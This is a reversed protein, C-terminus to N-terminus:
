NSHNQKKGFYVSRANESELWASLNQAFQRASHVGSAKLRHNMAATEILISLNRGPKVPLKLKPIEVGLIDFKIEHTGLRDYEKNPDFLELEIVMAVRKQEKVSAVGFLEAVNIIGLGRVELHYGLLENVAKGVLLNGGLRRISVADDCVLRHGREILELATESKGVGSEGTLLIGMGFVEVMVGHLTKQPAFIDSLARIARASFESSNLPTMLVPCSHEDAGAIFRENPKINHTFICCPIEAALIKQVNLWSEDTRISSLFASEGKGFIQLRGAAFEEFFGNLALGPRNLEPHSINRTLGKRGALCTMELNNYEPLDLDLFDLVTFRNIM